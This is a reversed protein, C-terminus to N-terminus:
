GALTRVFQYVKLFPVTEEEEEEEEKVEEEEEREEEDEDGDDKKFADRAFREGRRTVIIRGIAVERGLVVIIITM